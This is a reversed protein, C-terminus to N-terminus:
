RNSNIQSRALIIYLVASVIFGAIISLDAGGLFKEAFSSKYLDASTCLIAVIVGIIWAVMGSINFGGAYISGTKSGPALLDAGNYTAKRLWIDATYVGAWPALWVVMLSLFGIFTATFDYVFIAYAAAATALIADVVVASPRSIKLGVALLSMGSSYTNLFNNTITGGLVVLVFVNYYWPALIPQFGGVPDTLNTARAAV